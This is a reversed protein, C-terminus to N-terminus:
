LVPAMLRAVRVAFRFVLSRAALDEGTLRTSRALDRELMREVDGCLDADCFLATVEFNLRFSRNDLNASSIIAYDDDVLMVKQHMFGPEYLYAQVGVREIDPLYAYPVFQFLVNDSSRPMIIRVDVGRLAAVQLAAFVAGDPVFYPTAIWVRREASAIAHAYLLSATEVEDAPGSEIVIGLRDEGSVSAVPKWDLAPPTRGTSFHWDKVFSLQLALALPGTVCVHTDRWEGMTKSGHLYEDGVNLGGTFATHGDIVVIKRHNRFNLRFRKLLSKRGPFGSVEIGAERLRRRYARSIWYSGIDDYLVCVAVGARAREILVDAFRDGLTDSKLIYFQFLISREARALADLMAPFAEAGDVLLRAGNGRLFPLRALRGFAAREGRDDASVDDREDEGVGFLFPALDSNERALFADIRANVSRLDSVYEHFRTRGFLWYLPFAILPFAVLSVAWAASGQSTRANMVADLASLIALGYVIPLAIAPARGLMALNIWDPLSLDM